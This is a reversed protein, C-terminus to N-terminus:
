AVWDAIDQIAAAQWAQTQPDLYGPDDHVAIGHQAVDVEILRTRAPIRAVYERSSEVPIFTDGTGHLM